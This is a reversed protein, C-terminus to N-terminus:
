VAGWQLSVLNPKLLSVAGYADSNRIFAGFSDLNAVSECWRNAKPISRLDATPAFYAICRLQSIAEDGSRGASIFQRTIDFEFREGRGWDFVGWQFLLMDSLASKTLGTARVNQYFSLASEVLQPV